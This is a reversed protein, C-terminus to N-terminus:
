KKSGKMAKMAKRYRTLDGETIVGAGMMDSLEKIAPDEAAGKARNAGSAMKGVSKIASRAARYAPAIGSGEAVDTALKKVKEKGGEIFGEKAARLVQMPAADKILQMQDEYRKRRPSGPGIYEVPEKMEPLPPEVYDITERMKMDEIDSGDPDIDERYRVEKNISKDDEYKSLESDIEDMYEDKTSLPEIPELKPMKKMGKITKMM